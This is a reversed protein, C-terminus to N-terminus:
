SENEKDEHQRHIALAALRKDRLSRRENLQELPMTQNLEKELKDLTEGSLSRPGGQEECVHKINAGYRECYDRIGNANLQMTEFPGILSYRLGLGETITTEVDEPSCVGDEVLRWAEMIIAYQLRNFIFGNVEKKTVVPAQGIEKMLAVTRDVVDSDTWPAPVIEVLPVYYPPNIGYNPNKQPNYQSLLDRLIYGNRTLKSPEPYCTSVCSKVLDGGGGPIFSVTIVPHAVICQKRHTLSETFKSPVLCSTSSALITKDSTVFSDLNAFVKKKLDVNEPTCEQVYLAGDVAKQLDDFSSVLQLAKQATMGDVRMLGKSEMDCLQAEISTLATSLQSAVTDYLAVNYGASSFLVSWCRGILGSGIIAVKGKNSPLSAM